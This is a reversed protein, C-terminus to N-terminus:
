QHAARSLQPPFRVPWFAKQIRTPASGPLGGRPEFRQDRHPDLAPLGDSAHPLLQRRRRVAQAGSSPQHPAPRSGVLPRCCASRAAFLGISPRRGFMPRNGAEVWGWEFCALYTSNAVRSRRGDLEVRAKSAGGTSSPRVESGRPFCAGARKSPAVRVATARTSKQRRVVANCPAAREAAADPYRACHPLQQRPVRGIGHRRM